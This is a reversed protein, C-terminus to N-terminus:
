EYDEPSLVIQTVFDGNRDRYYFVLRLHHDRHLKMTSSFQVTELLESWMYVTLGRIDIKDRVQNVLTYNYQFTSDPLINVSDMRTDVDVMFPCKFNISAALKEVPNMPPPPEQDKCSTLVAM